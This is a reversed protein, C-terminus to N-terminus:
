GARAHVGPGELERPGDEKTGAGGRMVNLYSQAELRFQEGRTAQLREVGRGIIEVHYEIPMAAAAAAGAGVREGQGPTEAAVSALLPGAVGERLNELEAQIEQLKVLTDSVHLVARKRYAYINRLLNISNANAKVDARNGGLQTWLSSLLDGQKASITADDNVAIAHITTLREDLNTLVWLLSTASKILADIEDKNRSIHLVYQDFIRSQLSPSPPAFSRTLANIFTQLAGTSSDDQDLGRLVNMTWQNTAIIRDTAGGIRSNYRALDQSAEKATLIFNEFENDLENRSPLRSYKVLTRLDRIALESDKISSPLTHVDKSADVIDDFQDQVAILEEFNAHPPETHCASIFYSSGPLSCVPALLANSVSSRLLGTGAQIGFVIIGIGLIVGLIPKIFHRLAYSFIDLIHALLPFVFNQLVLNAYYWPGLEKGKTEQEQEQKKSPRARNDVSSTPGVAPSTTNPRRLASQNTARQRIQPSARTHEDDMAHNRSNYMLPMILSPESPEEAGARHLSRTAKPRSRSSELTHSQKKSNKNTSKRSPTSRPQLPPTSQSLQSRKARPTRLPVVDPQRQQTIEKNSDEWEVEGTTEKASDVSSAEDSAYDADGWSSGLSENLRRSRASM